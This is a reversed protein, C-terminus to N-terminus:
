VKVTYSGLASKTTCSSYDISTNMAGSESEHFTGVSVTSVTKRPAARQTTLLGSLQVKVGIIAPATNNTNVPIATLVFHRLRSFGYKSANVALYQALISSNLFPRHLRVIRLEVPVTTSQGINTETYFTIPDTFELSTSFLRSLAAILANIATNNPQLKTTYVTPQIGHGSSRGSRATAEPSANACCYYFLQVVVREATVSFIPTSILAHASTFYAKLLDIATRQAALNVQGQGLGLGYSTSPDNPANNFLKTLFTYSQM